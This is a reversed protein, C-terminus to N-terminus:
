FDGDITPDDHINIIDSSPMDDLATVLKSEAGSTPAIANRLYGRSGASLAKYAKFSQPDLLKRLHHEKLYRGPLNSVLSKPKYKNYMNQRTNPIYTSTYAMKEIGSRLKAALDSAVKINDLREMVDKSKIETGPVTNEAYDAAIDAVAKEGRQQVTRSHLKDFLTTGVNGGTGVQGSLSTINKMPDTFNRVGALFTDSAIVNDDEDKKRRTWIKMTDPLVQDLTLDGQGEPTIEPIEAVNTTTTTTDETAEEEDKTIDAAEKNLQRLFLSSKTILDKLM